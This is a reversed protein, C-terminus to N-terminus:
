TVTWVCTASNGGGASADNVVVNDVLIRCEGGTTSRITLVVTTGPLVRHPTTSAVQEVRDRTVLAAYDVRAEGVVAFRVTHPTARAHAQAVTAVLGGAVGAAAAVVAM